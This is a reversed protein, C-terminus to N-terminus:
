MLLEFYGSLAIIPAGIIEFEFGAVGFIGPRGVKDVPEIGESNWSLVPSYYLSQQEGFIGVKINEM